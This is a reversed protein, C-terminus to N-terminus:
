EKASFGKLGLLRRGGPLSRSVMWAAPVWLVFLPFARMGVPLALALAGLLIAAVLLHPVKEKLLARPLTPSFRSAALFLVLTDAIVRIAWALAAGNIGWTKVLVWVLPIYAVLEALHFKAALDPRGLAQLLNFPVQALSNVLVAAALLQLVMTGEQAFEAGLWLRLIESAYAVIIASLPAMVLLLLRVSRAALRELREWEGQRKLSNFAPFVTSMLSSPIIWLRTVMEYPATYYGLAATSRLAGIMFRDLYVLLPGVISTVTVWGGFGLLSRLQASDFRPRTRIEPFTRAGLGYFALLSLGRLVVLLLVVAPLEWGLWVGLAPLLFSSLNLPVRVANVLDFRQGAELLGSFSGAMLVMPISFALTFFISRAESVLEKPINLVREVLLPTLTILVLVALGGLIAQATVSSWVIVPVRNQNGSALAEAVFKTTARGLGLDFLTFYGLIVWALSLLGFRDVGLGHIIYPIALVGVLIPVAQSALNLFANRALLAGM